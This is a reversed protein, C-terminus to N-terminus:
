RGREPENIRRLQENSRRIAIMNQGEDQNPSSHSRSVEALSIVLLQRRIPQGIQRLTRHSGLQKRSSRM